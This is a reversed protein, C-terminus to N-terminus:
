DPNKRYQVKPLQATPPAYAALDMKASHITGSPYSSVCKWIVHFGRKNPM